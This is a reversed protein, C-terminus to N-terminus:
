VSLVGDAYADQGRGRVLAGSLRGRSWLFVSDCTNRLDKDPDYAIEAVVEDQNHCPFYGELALTMQGLGGTVQALVAGYDRMLAVPAIGQLVATENELIPADFKGYMRSMDTMVRGLAQQPMEIRVRYYPELLVSQAKCLGQRVARYTAQRFDGGETHKQTGQWECCDPACRYSSIRDFRGPTNAGCPTYLDLRQWNPDLVDPPCDMAYEMGSGQPLEEILIHAEAYHRSPNM